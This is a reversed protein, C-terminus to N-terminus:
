MCDDCSWSRSRKGWCHERTMHTPCLSLVNYLFLLIPLWFLFGPKDRVNIHYCCDCGVKAVEFSGVPYTVQEVMNLRLVQVAVVPLTM